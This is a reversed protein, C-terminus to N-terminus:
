KQKAAKAEDCFAVYKKLALRYTNMYYKGFPFKAKPFKRMNENNGQKLFAKLVFECHDKRYQEDLDCHNLEREIRKLRSVHDCQVKRNTGKENLWRRFEIEKM